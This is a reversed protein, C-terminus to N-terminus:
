GGWAPICFWRGVVPQVMRRNADRNSGTPDIGNQNESWEHIGDNAVERGECKGTDDHQPPSEGEELEVSYTEAAAAMGPQYPDTQRSEGGQNESCM